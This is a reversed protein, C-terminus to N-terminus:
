PMKMELRISFLVGFIVFGPSDQDGRTRPFQHYETDSIPCCPLEHLHTAMMRELPVTRSVVPHVQLMSPDSEPLRSPPTQRVRGHGVLCIARQQGSATCTDRDLFQVPHVREAPDQVGLPPFFDGSPNGPSSDSRWVAILHRRGCVWSTSLKRLDNRYVPIFDRSLPFTGSNILTHVM